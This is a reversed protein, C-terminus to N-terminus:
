FLRYEPNQVSRLRTMDADIWKTTLFTHSVPTERKEACLRRWREVMHFKALEDYAPPRDTM